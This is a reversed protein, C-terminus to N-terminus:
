GGRLGAFLGGGSVRVAGAAEISLRGPPGAHDPKALPEPQHDKTAVPAPAQSRIEWPRPWATQSSM